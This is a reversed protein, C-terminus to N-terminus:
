KRKMASSPRRDVTGTDRLKKLLKNAGRKTLRKELFEDTLRNAIYGKLYLSKILIKDDDSFVM